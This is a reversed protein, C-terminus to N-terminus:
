RTLLSFVYLALAPVWLPRAYRIAADAARPRGEAPLLLDAARSAYYLGVLVIAVGRALDGGLVLEVLGLVLLAGAVVPYLRAEWRSPRPRGREAM